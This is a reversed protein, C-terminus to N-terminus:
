YFSVNVMGGGVLALDHANLETLALLDVEVESENNKVEDSRLTTEMIEM